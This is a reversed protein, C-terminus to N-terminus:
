PAGGPMGENGPGGEGGPMGEGESMGEGGPMGEEGPGGPMGGPGGPMGSSTRAELWDPNAEGYAAAKGTLETVIDYNTEQANEHDYSLNLTGDSNETYVGKCIVGPVYYVAANM